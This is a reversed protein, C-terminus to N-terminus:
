EKNFVSGVVLKALGENYSASKERYKEHMEEAQNALSANTGHFLGGIGGIAAGVAANRVPDAGLGTLAGVGAGALGGGLAELYGRGAARYTGGMHSGYAAGLSQSDMPKGYQAAINNEMWAPSMWGRALEGVSAIKETYKNHLEESINKTDTHKKHILGALGGIASGIQAGAFTKGSRHGLGAGVLGGGIASGILAIDGPAFARRYAGRTHSELLEGASRNSIDKGHEKAIHSEMWAPSIWGKATEQFSSIKELYKNSVYSAKKEIKKILKVAAYDGALGLTGILAGMRFANGGIKPMSNGMKTALAGTSFGMAGITGTQVLEKKAEDSLAIKELYLNTM